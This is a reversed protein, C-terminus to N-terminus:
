KEIIRNVVFAHDRQLRDNNLKISKYIEPNERHGIIMTDILQKAKEPDSYIVSKMSSYTEVLEHAEIDKIARDLVEQNIKERKFIEAYNNLDDKLKNLLSKAETCTTYGVNLCTTALARAYNYKLKIEYQTMRETKNWNLYAAEYHALARDLEERELYTKGDNLYQYTYSNLLKTRHLTVSCPCKAKIYNTKVSVERGIYSQDPQLQFMINDSDISKKKLKCGTEKNVILKEYGSKYKVIIEGEIPIKKQTDKLLILLDICEAKSNTLITM